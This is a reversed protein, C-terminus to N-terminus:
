NQEEGREKKPVEAGPPLAAHAADQAGRPAESRRAGLAAGPRLAVPSSSSQFSVLFLFILDM